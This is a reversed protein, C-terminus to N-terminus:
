RRVEMRPRDLAGLVAHAVRDPTLPRSPFNLASGGGAVEHRLMPTDVSGPHIMSVGVGTEREM